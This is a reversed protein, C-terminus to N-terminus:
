CACIELTTLLHVLAELLQVRVWCTTSILRQRPCQYVCGLGIPGYERVSSSDPPDNENAFRTLVKRPPCQVANLTDHRWWFM